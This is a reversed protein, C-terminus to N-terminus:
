VTVRHLGKIHCTLPRCGKIGPLRDFDRDYSYITDSNSRGMAAALMADGFDLRETTGYIQLAILVTSQGGDDHNELVALLFIRIIVPVWAPGSAPGAM